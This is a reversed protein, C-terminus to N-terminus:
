DPSPEKSPERKAGKVKKIIPECTGVAKIGSAIAAADEHKTPEIDFKLPQLARRIANQRSAEMIEAATRGPRYPVLASAVNVPGDSGNLLQQKLDDVQTNLRAIQEKAAKGAEQSTSLADTLVQVDDMLDSVDANGSVDLKKQLALVQRNLEHCKEVLANENLKALELQSLLRASSGGVPGDANEEMWDAFSQGNLRLAWKEKVEKSVRGQMIETRAGM